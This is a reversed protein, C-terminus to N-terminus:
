IFRIKDFFDAVHFDPEATEVPAWSAYHIHDTKDGCKYFNGRCVPSINKFYKLLFEDPIYFKVTWDGEHADSVISLMDRDDTILARDYRDSGIGIHMVGTPNVEFNIYRKDYIDPKFFFEMCSDEFVPDLWTKAVARLSRENTHMLISIGEPGRLIKFQMQPAPHYGEWICNNLVGTNAQLWESSDISPNIVNTKKVQYEM